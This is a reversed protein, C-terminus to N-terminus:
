LAIPLLAIGLIIRYIGFGVFTGKRVYSMLFSISLLATAFSTVLGVSVLGVEYGTFVVPTKVLELATAALMTPIALLFSFEVADERRVNLLLGGSITAASRSVGPIFSLAQFIGLCAARRLTVPGREMQRGKYWKEIVILAIGGLILAAVVILLNGLLYDKIIRYCLLGLIATPVFGVVVRKWLEINFLRKRFYVPVAAIAGIQIIIEFSKLFEQNAIPLFHSAIILHGTSSIPLFETVGEVIGLILAELISM